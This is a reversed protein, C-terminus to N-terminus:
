WAGRGSLVAPITRALIRLDRGFSWRDVYSLDLDVLADSGLQSRGSVQWPGTIGPRMALRRRQVATHQLAERVPLPRPGVLSMDGRLVNWIQPLEDLSSARLWRGVRTVRPDDRVKFVPGGMENRRRLSEPVVESGVRMTRFKFIVFRRGNLGVREQRFLVPGPSTLRVVLGVLVGIPICPVLLLSALGVDFVRKALLAIEQNATRGATTVTLGRHWDAPLGSRDPRESVFRVVLGRAEAQRVGDRVAASDIPRCIIVEDIVRDDLLRAVDALRGLVPLEADLETCEPSEAGSGVVGVIRLGWEDHTRALRAFRRALAGNGVLLANRTNRGARRALHSLARMSMRECGLGMLALPLFVGLTGAAVPGLLGAAWALILALSAPIHARLLATWQHWTGTVRQTRYCGAARLMLPWVVIAIWFAPLLASAAWGSHAAVPDTVRRAVDFSVGVIVAEVAM